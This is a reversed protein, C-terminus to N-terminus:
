FATRRSALQREALWGFLLGITTWMIVQMGISTTRFRWLVSAPFAEPVENVAPLLLQIVAIAVIFLAAGALVANWPGLSSVLRRGLTLAMAFVALSGIMMVFFLGTRLGITGPLGVAPPNPPYKIAPVLFIVLFAAGALLAATARPGFAGLRGYVAAFVLAFLGGVAAGYVIVGTALGITSQVGRSVLAVDGHHHDAEMSAHTGAALATHAHAAGAADMQEEFAIARDVLPEGVIRAFVFTLLGAVVGVLM